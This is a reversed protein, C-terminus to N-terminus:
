RPVANLRRALKEACKHASVSNQHAHDCREYSVEGHALRSVMGRVARVNQVVRRGGREWRVREDIFGTTLPIWEYTKTDM